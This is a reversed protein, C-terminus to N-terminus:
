AVEAWWLCMAFTIPEESHWCCHYKLVVHEPCQTTRRTPLDNSKSRENCPFFLYRMTCVHTVPFVIWVLAMSWFSMVVPQMVLGSGKGRKFIPSKLKADPFSSQLANCLNNGDYYETFGNFDSKVSWYQIHNIIINVEDNGSHLSHWIQIIKSDLPLKGQFTFGVTNPRM